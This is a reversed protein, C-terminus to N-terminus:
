RVNVRISNTGQWWESCTGEYSSRRLSNPKCLSEVRRLIMSGLSAKYVRFFEHDAWFKVFETISRWKTKNNGGYFKKLSSSMSEYRTSQSIANDFVARRERECAKFTM